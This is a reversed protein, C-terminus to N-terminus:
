YKNWIIIRKFELELQKLGKDDQTQLIVVLVYFKTDIVIFTGAVASNTIVCSASRILMLNTERNILPMELARM